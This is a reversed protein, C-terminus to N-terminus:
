RGVILTMTLVLHFPSFGSASCHGLVLHFVDRAEEPKQLREDRRRFLVLQVIRQAASYSVVMGHVAILRAFAPFGGDGFTPKWCAPVSIRTGSAQRRRAIPALLNLTRRGMRIEAKTLPRLSM